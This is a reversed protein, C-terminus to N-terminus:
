VTVQDVYGFSSEVLERARQILEKNKKDGAINITWYDIVEYTLASEEDLRKVLQEMAWLNGIKATMGFSQGGKLSEQGPTINDEERNGV